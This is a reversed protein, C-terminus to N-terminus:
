QLDYYGETKKKVAGLILYVFRSNIGPLSCMQELIFLLFVRQFIANKESLSTLSVNSSIVVVM